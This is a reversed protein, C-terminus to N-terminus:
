AKLASRLFSEPLHVGSKELNGPNYFITLRGGIREFAIVGGAAFLKRSNCVVLKHESLYFRTQQPNFAWAVNAKADISIDQKKLQIVMDVDKCAIRGESGAESALIRLFKAAEEVSIDEAMLMAQSHTAIMTIAVLSTCRRNLSGLQKFM